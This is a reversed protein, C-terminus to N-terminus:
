KSLPLQRRLACHKSLFASSDSCNKSGVVWFSKKQVAAAKKRKLVPIMRLLPLVDAKLTVTRYSLLISCMSSPTCKCCGENCRSGMITTTICGRCPRALYQHSPMVCYESATIEGKRTSWFADWLLRLYKLAWFRTRRSKSRHTFLHQARQAQRHERFQM